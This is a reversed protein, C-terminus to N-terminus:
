PTAITGDAEPAPVRAQDLARLFLEYDTFDEIVHSTGAQTLMDRQEQGGVGVLPWGIQRCVRVDWSADGVYVGREFRDVDYYSQAKSLAAKLLEDRWISDDVFAAPIEDMPLGSRSLKFLACDRWGGSAIAVCWDGEARLRKVAGFAGTVEEFPKREFAERLLSRFRRHLRALVEDDAKKGAHEEYIQVTVSAITTSRYSSWNTNFSHIGFEEDFARLFCEHDVHNTHLLTGDIDFIVLKM